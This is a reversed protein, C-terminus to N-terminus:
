TFICMRSVWMVRSASGAWQMWALSSCKDGWLECPDNKFLRSSLPLWVSGEGALVLLNRFGKEEEWGRQCSQRKGHKRSRLRKGGRWLALCIAQLNSFHFEWGLSFGRGVGLAVESLEGWVGQECFSGTVLAFVICPFASSLVTLATKGFLCWSIRKKRGLKLVVWHCGEFFLPLSAFQGM